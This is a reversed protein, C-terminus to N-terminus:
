RRMERLPARSSRKNQRFQSPSQGTRTRFVKSFHSHDSFGLKAAIEAIQYRRGVLMSQVMSMRIRQVLEYPGIGFEQSFMRSFLIPPLDAVEALKAVDIQAAGINERIFAELGEIDIASRITEVETFRGRGAMYVLACLVSQALSQTLLKADPDTNGLAEWLLHLLTQSRNDYWYQRCATELADRANFAMDSCVADVMYRPFSVVLIEHPCDIDFELRENSPSIGIAGTSRAKIERWKNGIKWAARTEGGLTLGVLTNPTAPDFLRHADQHALIAEVGCQAARERRRFKAYGSTGYHERYSSAMM